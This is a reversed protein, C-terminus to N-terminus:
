VIKGPGPQADRKQRLSRGAGGGDMLKCRLTHDATLLVVCADRVRSSILSSPEQVLGLAM